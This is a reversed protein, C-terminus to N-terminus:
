GLLFCEIVLWGSADTGAGYWDTAALAPADKWKQVLPVPAAGFNYGVPPTSQPILMGVTALGQGSWVEFYCRRPNAEIVLQVASGNPNVKSTKVGYRSGAVAIEYGTDADPM